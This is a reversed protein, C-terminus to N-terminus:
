RLRQPVPTGRFVKTAAVPVTNCFRKEKDLGKSRVNDKMHIRAIPQPGADARQFSM